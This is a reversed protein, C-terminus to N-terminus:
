IANSSAATEPATEPASDPADASPKPASSRRGSGSPRDDGAVTVTDPGTEAHRMTCDKAWVDYVPHEVVNLSPTEKFLWGSFVKRWDPGTTKKVIVQVFAGTLQDAEWDATTECAKLRIVLDGIRVGEGPKLKIDRSLGNRKNLVGLTAVRQAMPTDGKQPQVVAAVTARPADVVPEAPRAFNGVIPAAVAVGITAVAAGIIAARKM